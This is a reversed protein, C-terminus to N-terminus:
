SYLLVALSDIYLTLDLDDLYNNENWSYPDQIAIFVYFNKVGAEPPPLPIFVVSSQLQATPPYTDEYKTLERFTYSRYGVVNGEEDIIGVIMVPKDVTEDEFRDDENDHFAYNLLIVVSSVYNNKIKLDDGLYVLVLPKSSYDQLAEIGDNVSSGNGWVADITTFLLSTVGNVPKNSMYLIYPAYGTEIRPERCYVEVIDATGELSVKGINQGGLFVYEAVDQSPKQIWTGSSGFRSPDGSVWIIGKSTINKFGYIKVRAQTNQCYPIGNITLSSDSTIMIVYKRPDRPDYGLYVNRVNQNNIVISTNILTKNLNWIYGNRGVMGETILLTTSDSWNVKTPNSMSDITGLKFGKLLITTPNWFSETNLIKIPILTFVQTVQKTIVQTLSLTELEKQDYINASIVNGQNTIVYFSTIRINQTNCYKSVNVVRGYTHGPNLTIGKFETLSILKQVEGCRVSTIASTIDVAVSGLNSITVLLEVGNIVATINLSQEVYMKAVDVSKRVVNEEVAPKGGYMRTYLTHAFPLVVIFLISLLVVAVILDSQGRM